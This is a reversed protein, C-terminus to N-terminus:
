KKNPKLKKDPAHQQEIIGTLPENRVVDWVTEQIIAAIQKPVAGYESPVAIGRPDTAYMTSFYTLGAIYSGVKNVHVADVYLDWISSYGPIESKAMKDNLAQFVQGVPVMFTPIAPYKERVAKTLKVFYDKTENTSDWKGTYTRGFLDSWVKATLKLDKPKKNSENPNKPWRSYIYLTFNPSHPKAMNIYKNIINLDSELLRNFPQLSIADWVFNDFANKPYGYPANTFGKNPHQWLWELPAGPIIQRGIVPQGHNKALAILGKYNLTDTVSNGVFYIRKPEQSYSPSAASVLYFFVFFIILYKSNFDQYFAYNKM